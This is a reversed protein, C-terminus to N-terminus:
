QERVEPGAVVCSHLLRTGRGRSGCLCQVHSRVKLPELVEPASVSTVQTAATSPRRAAFSSGPRFAFSSSSGPRNNSASGISTSATSSADLLRLVEKERPSTLLADIADHASGGTAAPEHSGGGRLRDVFQKIQLELMEQAVSGRLRPKIRSQLAVFFAFQHSRRSLAPVVADCGVIFQCRM